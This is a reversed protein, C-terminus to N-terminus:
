VQIYKREVQSGTFAPDRRGLAYDGGITTRRLHREEDPPAGVASHLTRWNDWLVMDDPQWHHYYANKEDILHRAIRELLDDGEANRMEFIGMAFWPSVNLVKRGTELQTYVMPHLVDPYDDRAISAEVKRAVASYQVVRAQHKRGFKQHSADLDYRYVVHLGEIRAKLDDPLTDYASIRDIFGTQGLRRPLTVPRLIGGRNIKDVYVLDFHWPLYSGRVEGDVETLWADDSTHRVDILEQRDKARNEPTPHAWLPGFIGSLTIHTEEGTLKRFVLVGEQLWLAFLDKRVQPDTLRAPDLDFVQAGWRL